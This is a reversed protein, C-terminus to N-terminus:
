SSRHATPARASRRRRASSTTSRRAPRPSSAGRGGSPSRRRPRGAAAGFWILGEIDLPLGPALAPASRGFEFFATPRWGRRSRRGTSGAGRRGGHPRARGRDPRLRLERRDGWGEPFAASARRAGEERGGCAEPRRGGQGPAGRPSASGARAQDRRPDRGPRPAAPLARPRRVGVVAGDRFAMAEQIEFDLTVRDDKVGRGYEVPVLALFRLLQQARRAARRASRRRRFGALARTRRRAVPAGRGAAGRGRALRVGRPDGRRAPARDAPYRAALIPWYGRRAAAEEARRVRLGSEGTAEGRRARALRRTPTSCTPRVAAAAAGPGAHRGRARRAGGDRRGPRTFRTPAPVRPDAALRARAARGAAGDGDDVVFPACIAGGRAQRARRRARARRRRRGASRAASPARRRRAAGRRPRGALLEGASREARAGRRARATQPPGLILDTQAGFLARLTEAAGEVQRLTPERAAALVCFAPLLVRIHPRRRVGLERAPDPVQGPPGGALRAPSRRRAARPMAAPPRPRTRGLVPPRRVGLACGRPSTTCRTSRSAM